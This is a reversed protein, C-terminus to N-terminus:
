PRSFSFGTGSSNRYEFNFPTGTAFLKNVCTKAFDLVNDMDPAYDSENDTDIDMDVNDIDNQASINNDGDQVYMHVMSEDTGISVNETRPACTHAPVVRIKKGYTQDMALTHNSVASRAEREILDSGYVRKNHEALLYRLQHTTRTELNLYECARIVKRCFSAIRSKRSEVDYGKKSFKGFLFMEREEEPACTHAPARMMKERYVALRQCLYDDNPPLLKYTKASTDAITSKQVVTPVHVQKTDTDLIVYHVKDEDTPNTTLLTHALECRSPCCMVGILSLMTMEEVRRNNLLEIARPVIEDSLQEWTLSSELRNDEIKENRLTRYNHKYERYFDFLQEDVGTEPVDKANLMIDDITEILRDKSPFNSDKRKGESGDEKIVFPQVYNAVLKKTTDKDFLDIRQEKIYKISANRYRIQEKSYPEGDDKKLEGSARPPMYEKEMYELLRDM